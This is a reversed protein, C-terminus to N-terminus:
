LVIKNVTLKGNCIIKVLYVGTHVDFISINYLTGVMTYNKVIRGQLDYISVGNLPFDSEVILSKKDVKYRIQVDQSMFPTEVSSIFPHEIETFTFLLFDDYPIEDMGNQKWMQIGDAGFTMKELDDLSFRTPTLSSKSYYYLTNGDDACAMNPMYSM